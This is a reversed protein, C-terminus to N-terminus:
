EIRELLRWYYVDSCHSLKVYILLKEVLFFVEGVQLMQGNGYFETTHMSKCLVHGVYRCKLLFSFVARERDKSHIAELFNIELKLYNFSWGELLM